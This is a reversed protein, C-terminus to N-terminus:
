VPIWDVKKKKKELKSISIINIRDDVQLLFSYFNPNLVINHKIGEIEVHNIWNRKLKAGLAVTKGIRLLRIDKHYSLLLIIHISNKVNKLKLLDCALYCM